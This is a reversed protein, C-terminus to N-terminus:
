TKQWICVGGNYTKQAYKAKLRKDYKGNVMNRQVQKDSLNNMVKDSIMKSTDVKSIPYNDVKNNLSANAAIWIVAIIIIGIITGM